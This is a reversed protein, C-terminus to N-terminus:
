DVRANEKVQKYARKMDKKLQDYLKTAQEERYDKLESLRTEIMEKLKEQETSSLKEKEALYETAHTLRDYERYYRIVLIGRNNYIDHILGMIKQRQKQEHHHMGMAHDFEYHNARIINRLRRQSDFYDEMDAQNEAAKYSGGGAKAVKKLSEEEAENLDFGIINVVAEIESQHLDKAEKVPDGGCTEVGDSVIYVVSKM